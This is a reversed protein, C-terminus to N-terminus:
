LVKKSKKSRKMIYREGIKEMLRIDGLLISTVDEEVIYVVNYKSSRIPLFYNPFDDSFTGDPNYRKGTYSYSRAPSYYKGDLLLFLQECDVVVCPLNLPTNFL